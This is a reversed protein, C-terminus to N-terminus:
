ESDEEIEDFSIKLISEINQMAGINRVREAEMEDTINNSM